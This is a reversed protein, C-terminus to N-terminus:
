EQGVDGAVEKSIANTFEETAKKSTEMCKEFAMADRVKFTARFDKPIAAQATKDNNYDIFHTCPRATPSEM